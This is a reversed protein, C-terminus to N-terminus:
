YLSVSLLVMEFSLISKTKSAVIKTLTAFTIIKHGFFLQLYLKEASHKKQQLDILTGILNSNSPSVIQQRLKEFNM